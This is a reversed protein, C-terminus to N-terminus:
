NKGDKMWRDLFRRFRSDASEVWRQMMTWIADAEAKAAHRHQQTDDLLHRNIEQTRENDM